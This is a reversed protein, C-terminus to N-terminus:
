HGDENEVMKRPIRLRVIAREGTNRFAVTEDVLTIKGDESVKEVKRVVDEPILNKPTPALKIKHAVQDLKQANFNVEQSLKKTLIEVFFNCIDRFLDAQFFPFRTHDRLHNFIDHGPNNIM